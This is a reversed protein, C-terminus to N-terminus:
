DKPPQTDPAIVQVDIIEDRDGWDTRARGPHRSTAASIRDRFRRALYKKLATRCAPILLAFGLLDTLVGPTILVAGAVLILLGDLLSDAPLRGAALDAQIRRWTRWGQRRALWAGVVGTTVVLALTFRWDTVSALWLLLALEALPVLTFLLILRLLVGDRIM